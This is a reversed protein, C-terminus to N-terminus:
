KPRFKQLVLQVRELDRRLNYVPVLGQKLIIYSQTGKNPDGKTGLGVEAQKQCRQLEWVCFVCAPLEPGPLASCCCRWSWLGTGRTWRVLLAISVTPFTEAYFWLVWLFCALFSSYILLLCQLQESSSPNQLLSHLACHYNTSPSVILEGYSSLLGAGYAKVIGNQRCLGFEVTFWYLQLFFLFVFPPCLEEENGQGHVISLTQLYKFSHTGPM